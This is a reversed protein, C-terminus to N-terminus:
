GEVPEGYVQVRAARLLQGKLQYGTQFTAAVTHARGADPAPIMSIAEHRTPDFPAGTPDIVEFGLAALEKWLKRDTLVVAEHLQTVTQAAVDSSALRDVDDLVDLLRALMEGQAREGLESRERATRKRFNDYEAALRLHRDRLETLEGELRQVALEPTEVPLGTIGASDAGEVADGTPLGGDDEGLARENVEENGIM